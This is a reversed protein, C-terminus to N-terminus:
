DGLLRTPRNSTVLEASSTAIRPVSCRWVTSAFLRAFTLVGPNLRESTENWPARASASCDLPPSVETTSAVGNEVVVSEDVEMRASPLLTSTSASDAFRALFWSRISLTIAISM